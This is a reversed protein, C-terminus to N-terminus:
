MFMSPVSGPQRWSRLISSTGRLLYVGKRVVLLKIGYLSIIATQESLWVFLMCDTSVLYPEKIDFGTANHVVAYIYGPCKCHSRWGVAASCTFPTM